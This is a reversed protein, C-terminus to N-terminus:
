KAHVAIIYDGVDLEGGNLATLQIIENLTWTPREGYLRARYNRLNTGLASAFQEQTLGTKARVM